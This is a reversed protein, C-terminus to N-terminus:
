EREKAIHDSLLEVIERAVGSIRRFTEADPAGERVARRLPELRSYAQWLMSHEARMVASLGAPGMRLELMPFLHNEEWENHERIKGELFALAADFRGLTEPDAGREALEEATKGLTELQVLAVDHEAYLANIPDHPDSTRM